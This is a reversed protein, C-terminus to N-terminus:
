RLQVELNKCWECRVVRTTCFFTWKNPECAFSPLIAFRCIATGPMVLIMERPSRSNVRTNDQEVKSYDAAIDWLFVIAVQQYTDYM